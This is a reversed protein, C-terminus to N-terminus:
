RPRLGCPDTRASRSFHNAHVFGVVGGGFHSCNKNFRELVVFGITSVVIVPTGIIAVINVALRVMDPYRSDAGSIVIYLDLLLETIIVSAVICLGNSRILAAMAFSIAASSAVLVLILFVFEM